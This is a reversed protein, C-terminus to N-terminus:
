IKHNKVSSEKPKKRTRHLKWWFRGAEGVSRCLFIPIAWLRRVRRPARLVRWLWECGCRRFVRPARRVDGAYVDLSGGLAAIATRPLKERWAAAVSEQRPSGLCIFLASPPSASLRALLAARAADDGYGHCVGAIVLGEYRASLRAAAREAVGEKGGYLFLSGGREALEAAVAEGFEVGPARPLRKGQMRAALSVGVGDPLLLEARKLLAFFAPDKAARSLMEANPTFVLAHTSLATAAAHLAGGGYFSLGFLGQERELM